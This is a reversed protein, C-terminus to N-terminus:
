GRQRNQEGYRTTELPTGMLLKAMSDSLCELVKEPSGECLSFNRGASERDGISGTRDAGGRLSRGRETM